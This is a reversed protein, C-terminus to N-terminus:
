GNTVSLINGDPDKFWAIRMTGSVHIDGEHSMGPYDYHEFTVGKSKLKSVIENLEEAVLWTLTTAKNTGAFESRYVYILNTGSKYKIVQDKQGGVSELGLVESYFKEAVALDKVAINIAADKKSLM